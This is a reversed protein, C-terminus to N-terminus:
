RRNNEKQKLKILEVIVTELDRELVNIESQLVLIILTFFLTSVIAYISFLLELNVM